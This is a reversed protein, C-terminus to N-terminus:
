MAYVEVSNWMRSRDSDMNSIVVSLGDEDIPACFSGKNKANRVNRATMFKTYCTLHYRGDAAHLDSRAGGIRLQVEDAWDDGRDNCVDLINKKLLDGKKQDLTRCEHFINWREPNEPILLCASKDVFSATFLFILTRIREGPERLNAPPLRIRNIM